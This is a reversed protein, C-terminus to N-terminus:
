HHFLSLLLANLLVHIICVLKFCPSICAHEASVETLCFPSLRFTASAPVSPRCSLKGAGTYLVSRFSMWKWFVEFALCSLISLRSSIMNYNLLFGGRSEGRKKKERLFSMLLLSLLFLYFTNLLTLSTRSARPGKEDWLETLGHLQSLVRTYFICSPFSNVGTM